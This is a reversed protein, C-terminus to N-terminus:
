FGPKWPHTESLAFGLGSVLCSLQKRKVSKNNMFLQLFWAVSNRRADEQFVVQSGGSTCEAESFPSRYIKSSTQQQRVACRQIHKIVIKMLSVDTVILSNFSCLGLM